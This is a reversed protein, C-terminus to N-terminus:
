TNLIIFYVAISHGFPHLTQMHHPWSNRFLTYFDIFIFTYIINYIKTCKCACPEGILLRKHPKLPKCQQHGWEASCLWTLPHRSHAFDIETRKKPYCIKVWMQTNTLILLDEWKKNFYTEFAPWVNDTRIKERHLLFNHRKLTKIQKYYLNVIEKKQNRKGAM